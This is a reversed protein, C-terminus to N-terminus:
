TLSHLRYVGEDDKAAIVSGHASLRVWSNMRGVDVAASRKPVWLRREVKAASVARSAGSRDDAISHPDASDPPPEPLKPHSAGWTSSPEAPPMYAREVDDQTQCYGQALDGGLSCHAALRYFRPRAALRLSHWPGGIARCAHSSSQRYNPCQCLALGPPVKALTRRTDRRVRGCRSTRPLCHGRRRSRM